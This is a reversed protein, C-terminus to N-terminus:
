NQPAAVFEGFDFDAALHETETPHADCEHRLLRRESYEIVHGDYESIAYGYMDGPRWSEPPLNTFMGAGAQLITAVYESCTYKRDKGSLARCCCLYGLRGSKNYPRGVRKHAEVQIKYEAEITVPITVFTYNDKYTKLEMDDMKRMRVGKGDDIISTVVGIRDFVLEIHAIGHPSCFKAALWNYVSTQSLLKSDTRLCALSITIISGIGARSPTYDTM